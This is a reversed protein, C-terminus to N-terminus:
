ESDADFWEEAEDEPDADFWAEDEDESDADATESDSSDTTESDSPDATASDPADTREVEGVGPDTEFWEDEDADPDASFWGEREHEAAADLWAKANEADDIEGSATEFWTNPDEPPLQKRMRVFKMDVDEITTEEDELEWYGASEYFPVANVAAMIDLREVEQFEASLELQKLLATAIGRGHFDPHVYLADVRDDMANLAGYGVIEEDVEAVHVIFREHGIAAEFSDLYSDEPKWAEVQEPSYQWHELEEIAIRKIDLMAEADDPEARRFHVDTM